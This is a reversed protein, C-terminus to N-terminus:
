HVGVLWHGCTLPGGPEHNEHVDDWGHGHRKSMARMRATDICTLSVCPGVISWTKQRCWIDRM